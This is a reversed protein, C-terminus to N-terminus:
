FRMLRWAELPTIKRYGEKCRFVGGRGSVKGIEAQITPYVDEDDNLIIGARTDKKEKSNYRIILDLENENLVTREVDYDKELFNKFSKKLKQEIPFTFQMNDIDKRISLVFIRDRQQPIGYNKANLKKYYNNYGMKEMSELYKDFNVKHPNKLVNAVNEWLIYKAKLKNVIRITEYMLSSRNGSGVDGGEQKGHFVLDASM